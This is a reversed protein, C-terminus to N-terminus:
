GEYGTLNYDRIMELVKKAPMKGKRRCLYKFHEWEYRPVGKITVTITEEDPDVPKVPEVPAEEKETDSDPMLPEPTGDIFSFSVHIRSGQFILGRIEADTLDEIGEEELEITETQAMHLITKDFVKRILTTRERVLDIRHSGISGLSAVARRIEQEAKKRM